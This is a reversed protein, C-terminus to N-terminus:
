KFDRTSLINLSMEREATVERHRKEKPLGSKPNTETEFSVWFLDLFSVMAAGATEWPAYAPPIAINRPFGTFNM